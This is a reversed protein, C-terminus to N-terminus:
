NANAQEWRYMKELFFSIWIAKGRPSLNVWFTFDDLEPDDYM